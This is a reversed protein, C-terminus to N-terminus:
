ALVIQSGASINSSMLETGHGAVLGSAVVFRVMTHERSYPVGVVSVGTVLLASADAATLAFHGIAGVVSVASVPHPMHPHHIMFEAQTASIARGQHPFRDFSFRAQMAFKGGSSTGGGGGINYKPGTRLTNVAPMNTFTVFGNSTFDLLPGESFGRMDMQLVPLGSAHANIFDGVFKFNRLSDGTCNEGNSFIVLPRVEQSNVDMRGGLEIDSWIHGRAVTDGAGLHNGKYVNIVNCTQNTAVDVDIDVIARINYIRAVAGSSSSQRASLQLPATTFQSALHNPFQFEGDINELTNYDNGEAADVTCDLLITTSVVGYELVRFNRVHHNRVNYPFYARAPRDIHVNDIVVNDGNKQFSFPYFVNSLYWNHVTIGRTRDIAVAGRSVALGLAGGLQRINEFLFGHNEGNIAILSHGLIQGTSQWGTVTNYNPQETTLNTIEVSNNGGQFIFIHCNNTFASAGIQFKAGNGEVVLGQLGTFNYLMDISPVTVGNPWVLSTKNAPFSLRGGGWAQIVGATAKHAATDDNAGDFKAGLMRPDITQNRSLEWWGGNTADTSGNPLFRDTTRLRGLHSPQATVRNYITFPSDGEVGYGSLFLTKAAAAVTAVEAATKTGFINTSASAAAITLTGAGDNYTLSIGAGPQLLAAVRDDIAENNPPAEITLTGAADDYTITIGSGPTLLAAVRDDIGESSVSAIFDAIQQILGGRSQGDQVLELMEEGTLANAPNAARLQAINVAEFAM